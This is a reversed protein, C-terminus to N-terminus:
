YLEKAEVGWGWDKDWKAAPVVAILQYIMNSTNQMTYLTTSKSYILGYDLAYYATSESEFTNAKKSPTTLLEKIDGTNDGASIEILTTSKWNLVQVKLSDEKFQMRTSDKWKCRLNFTIVSNGLYPSGESKEVSYSYISDVQWYFQYPEIKYENITDVKFTNTSIDKTIGKTMKGGQGFDYFAISNLEYNANSGTYQSLKVISDKDLEFFYFEKIPENSNFTIDYVMILASDTKLQKPLYYPSMDITDQAVMSLVLPFLLTVLLLRKM